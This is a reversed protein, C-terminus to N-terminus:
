TRRERALRNLDSAMARYGRVVRDPDRAGARRLRSWEARFNALERSSVGARGARRYAQRLSSDAALVVSYTCRRGGPRACDGGSEKARPKAAPAPTAPAPAPDIVLPTVPAQPTLVVELSGPAAPTTPAAAAPQPKPPADRTLLAGVAVGALALAVSAGVASARGRRAAPGSASIPEAKSSASARGLPAAGFIAEVESKVTRAAARREGAIDTM